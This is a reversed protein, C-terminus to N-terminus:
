KPEGVLDEFRPDGHLSELDPDQRAWAKQKELAGATPQNQELERRLYEFAPEKEGLLAYTCAFNYWTAPGPEVSRLLARAELAKGGRARYCALLVRMSDDQRIAWAKEFWELAKKPDRMRVNANVALSVLTSCRQNRLIEIAGRSQGRELLADELALLREVAKEMQMEALKPDGADTYSGGLMIEIEALMETGWYFRQAIDSADLDSRARLLLPRAEEARNEDRLARATWTVFSSPARLELLEHTDGDAVKRQTELSDQLRMEIEIYRLNEEPEVGAPRAMHELLELRLKAREQALRDGEAVGTRTLLRTRHPDRLPDSLGADAVVPPDGGPPVRDVISPDAPVTEPVVYPEFGIMEFPAVGALARGLALRVAISRSAPFAAHRRVDLVLELPGTDSLLMADLTRPADMDARAAHMQAELGLAHV